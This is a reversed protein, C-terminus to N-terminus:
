SKAPRPNRFADDNGSITSGVELFREAKKIAAFFTARSVGEKECIEAVASETKIGKSELHALWNLWLMNRHHNKSHRDPSIYRGRKKAILELRHDADSDRLANVVGMLIFAEHEPCNDAIEEIMQALTEASFDMKEDDLGLHIRQVRELNVSHKRLSIESLRREFDEYDDKNM